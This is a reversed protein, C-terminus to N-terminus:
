RNDTTTGKVIEKEKINGPMLSAFPNDPILHVKKDKLYFPIKKREIRIYGTHEM